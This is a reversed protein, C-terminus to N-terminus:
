MPAVQLGIVHAHLAQQGKVTITVEYRIESNMKQHSLSSSRVQTLATLGLDRWTLGRGAIGRWM